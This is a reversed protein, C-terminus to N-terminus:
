YYKNTSDQDPYSSQFASVVFAAFGISWVMAAITGITIYIALLGGSMPQTPKIIKLEAHRAVAISRLIIAILFATSAFISLAAIVRYYLPDLPDALKLVWPVLAIVIAAVAGITVYMSILTPQHKIRLKLIGSVIFVAGIILIYLGVTRWAAEASIIEWIGLTTSVMSALTLVFISTPLVSRGVQNSRDTWLLALIFLSHSFFVLITALSKQIESNFSGILLAVIAVLASAALGGILVYMFALKLKSIRSPTPALVKEEHPM